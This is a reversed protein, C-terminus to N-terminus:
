RSRIKLWLWHVERVKFASCFFLYVVSYFGGAILLIQLYEFKSDPPSFLENIRILPMTLVLSLAAAAAVKGLVLVCGKDWVDPLHKRFMWALFLFNSTAVVSTSAALSWHGYHLVVIFVTNLIANLAISVLSIRMPSQSNGFALFAPQYIKILAYGTIAVSYAMLAQATMLTDQLEFRGHQYILGVIPQALIFLLCSAPVCLFLCLGISSQLTQRMDALRNQALLKAFTPASASAIAVGFIGLPFQMFRFAYNIWSVAGDGLSAAFQTNVLVNVQVAAGGLIAPGTLLLVEKLASDRFHFDYKLHVGQKWLVPLQMAYQAVGGFLVGAAMAMIARTADGAALMKGVDGALAAAWYIPAFYWMCLLGTVLSVINFVTSASHPIFYKNFANLIGMVLAALAALLIFPMLLRTLTVTLTFKDGEFSSALAHVLVPSFIIGLVVLAGVLVQIFTFVKQALALAETKQGLGLKKSFVAVFSQSLAGEALLDRLLNPIRFAVVFADFVASAGFFFAFVQERVLGFIRSGLIAFIAVFARKQTGAKELNQQSSNM